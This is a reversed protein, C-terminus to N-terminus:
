LFKVMVIEDILEGHFLIKKPIRGVEEFGLKKYLAIGAENLSYVSLEIMALGMRTALELIVKLLEQGIGEGRFEKAVSIGFHGVHKSRRELRDVNAVAIIKEDKVAVVVFTNNQEMKKLWNEIYEYEDQETFQEGGMRVFTDECSLNNIYSTMQEVDGSTIFRFVISHDKKSTFEHVITGPEFM